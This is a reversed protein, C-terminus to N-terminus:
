SMDAPTRHGHVSLLAGPLRLAPRSACWNSCWHVLDLAWEQDRDRFRHAAVPYPRGVLLPSLASSDQAKRRWGGRWERCLAACELLCLWKHYWNDSTSGSNYNNHHEMRERACASEVAEASARFEVGPTSGLGIPRLRGVIVNRMCADKM